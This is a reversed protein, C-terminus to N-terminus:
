TSSVETAMTVLREAILADAVAAVDYAAQDLYGALIDAACYDSINLKRPTREGNEAAKLLVVFACVEAKRRIRRIIDRETEEKIEVM